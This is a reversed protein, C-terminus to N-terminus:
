RGGPAQRFARETDGRYAYEGRTKAVLLDNVSGERKAKEEEPRVKAKDNEAAAGTKEAEVEAETKRVKSGDRASQLAKVASGVLKSFIVVIKHINTVLSMADNAFKVYAQYKTDVAYTTYKMFWEVLLKLLRSFPNNNGSNAVIETKNIIEGPVEEDDGGAAAQLKFVPSPPAKSRLSLSPWPPFVTVTVEIHFTPAPPPERFPLNERSFCSLLGNQCLKSNTLLFLFSRSVTKAKQFQYLCVRTYVSVM